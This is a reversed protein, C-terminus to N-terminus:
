RLGRSAGFKGRPRGNVFVSFNVSTLCGRMWKRWRFKFGKKKLVDDLFNWDVHDYAKEFDIKFVVGEKKKSRNEEMVENAVLVLDLIQRGKIFAGQCLSIAEDLVERLRLALVKALIKYLNTVLSIPRFYGKNQM